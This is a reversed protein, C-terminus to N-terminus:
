QIRASHSSDACQLLLDLMIFCLDQTSGRFFQPLGLFHRVDKTLTIVIYKNNESAMIAFILGISSLLPFWQVM